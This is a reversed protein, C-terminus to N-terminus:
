ASEAIREIAPTSGADYPMGEDHEVCSLTECDNLCNCCAYFMQGENVCYTYVKDKCCLSIVM